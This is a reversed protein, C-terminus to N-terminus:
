KGPAGTFVSRHAAQQGVRMADDVPPTTWEVHLQIDGFSKKTVIGARQADGSPRRRDEMPARHRRCRGWPRLQRHEVEFTRKRRVACDRRVASVDLSDAPSIVNRPQSKSM